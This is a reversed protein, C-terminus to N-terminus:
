LDESSKASIIKKFICLIEFKMLKKLHLNSANFSIDYGYKTIETSVTNIFNKQAHIEIIV